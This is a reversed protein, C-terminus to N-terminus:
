TEMVGSKVAPVSEYRAIARILFASAIAVLGLDDLWGLVPILDPVLDFPFVLYLLSALWLLKLGLGAGPDTMFRFAAGVSGLLPFYRRRGATSRQANPPSQARLGPPPPATEPAHSLTRR